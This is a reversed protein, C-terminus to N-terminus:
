SLGGAAILAVGVVALGLGARQSAALQEGLVFRALLVTVVSYLSAGVAVLPLIGHTTAVAYLSNASVDLLGIAALAVLVRGRARPLKPRAHLAAVGLVTVGGARAAAITWAPDSEAVEDILLFFVGFGLAALAALGISNRSAARWEPDPERAVVVVAPIAVAAGVAQLGGPEEGQAIGVTVPVLVGLAAIMSVVSISGLAMATYFAGLALVVAGGAASALLFDGAALPGSGIALAVGFALVLGVPQSVLLVSLASFRRTQLGGMFDSIGWSVSAALALAIGLL